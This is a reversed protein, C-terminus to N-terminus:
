NNNIEINICTRMVENPYNSINFRQNIFYRKLSEDSATNSVSTTYNNAQDEFIVKVSKQSPKILKLEEALYIGVVGELEYYTNIGEGDCRSIKSNLTYQGEKDMYAVKQGISLDTNKTKKLLLIEM